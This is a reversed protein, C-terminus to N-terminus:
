ACGELGRAACIIEPARAARATLPPVIVIATWFWRNRGTDLILSIFDKTTEPSLNSDSLRGAPRPGDIDVSIDQGHPRSNEQVTSWRSEELAFVSSKM